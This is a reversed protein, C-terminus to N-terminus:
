YLMTFMTFNYMYNMFKKIIMGNISTDIIIAFM